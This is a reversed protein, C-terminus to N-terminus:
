LWQYKRLHMESTIRLLWDKSVMKASICASAAVVSSSDSTHYKIFLMKNEKIPFKIEEGAILVVRNRITGHHYKLFANQYKKERWFIKIIEINHFNKKIM